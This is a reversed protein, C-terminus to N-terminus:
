IEGRGQILKERMMLRARYLRNKIITEPQNLIVELEKYPLGQQHFLVVPLRYKDPLESIAKRIQLLEENEVFQNEPNSRMDSVDTVAEATVAENKNRHFWDICVNTTIKILWTAFKYDPNYSGLSRYVKLFVEQSLDDSESRSGTCNYIVNYVLKKYRSVLLAFDDKRGSLCAKILENDTAEL